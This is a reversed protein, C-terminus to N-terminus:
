RWLGQNGLFFAAKVAFTHFVIACCEYFFVGMIKSVKAAAFGKSLVDGRMTQTGKIPELCYAALLDFPDYLGNSGLSPSGLRGLLGSYPAIAM